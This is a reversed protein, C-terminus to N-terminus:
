ERGPTPVSREAWEGTGTRAWSADDAVLPVQVQDALTGVPTLLTVTEGASVAFDTHLEGQRRDKGSAFVTLYEGPDLAVDPLAWRALKEVSDSLYWGELSVSETGANYLEIWDSCEGDADKWGTLNRPAIETLIVNVNGFGRSAVWAAYGSETNEYGPTPLATVIWEGAQRAYSTDDRLFPFSVRDLVNQGDSLIVTEGQKSLRFGARGGAPADEGACWVVLYSGPGLTTGDPFVYRQEGEKDSLSLGTLDATESGTNEVEIWDCPIGDPGTCLKAASMVESIRIPSVAKVSTGLYAARGEETNPYGPTPTASVTFSGDSQRIISCNRRCRLTETQDLVTNASNMLFITEGGQKKLSFPAYMAGTHEPSCWVVIQGGAPIVTGMPFAYRARTVDDSLRYGSLNFDSSSTNEIEIWDCLVGDANPCATNSTMYESIRLPYDASEATSAAGVGGTLLLVPILVLAFVAAALLLALIIKKRSVAM